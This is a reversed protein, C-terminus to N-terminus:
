NFDTQSFYVAKGEKAYAQFKNKNKTRHFIIRQTDKSVTRM